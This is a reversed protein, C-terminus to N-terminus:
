IPFPFCRESSQLLSDDVLVITRVISAHFALYVTGSACLGFVDHIVALIQASHISGRSIAHLRRSNSSAPEIQLQKKRDEASGNEVLLAHLLAKALIKHCDVIAGLGSATPTEIARPGPWALNANGPIAFHITSNDLSPLHSTHQLQPILVM